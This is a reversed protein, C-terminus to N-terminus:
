KKYKRTVESFTGWYKERDWVDKPIDRGGQTRMVFPHRTEEKHRPVVVEGTTRMKVSPHQTEYTDGHVNGSVWKTTAKEPINMRSGGGTKSYGKRTPTITISGTGPGIYKEKRSLGFDYDYWKGM